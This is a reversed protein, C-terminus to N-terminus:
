EQWEITVDDARQVLGSAPLRHMVEIRLLRPTVWTFARVDVQRTSLPVWSLRDSVSRALYPVDDRDAPLFTTFRRVFAVRDPGPTIRVNVTPSKWWWLALFGVIPVQMVLIVFALGVTWLRWGRLRVPVACGDPTTM